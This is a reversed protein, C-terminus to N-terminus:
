PQQYEDTQRRLFPPVYVGNRMGPGALPVQAAAPAETGMPAVPATNMLRLLIKSREWLAPVGQGGTLIEETAAKAGQVISRGVGAAKTEGPKGSEAPGGPETAPALPLVLDDITAGNV